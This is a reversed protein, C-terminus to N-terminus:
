TAADRAAQRIGELAAEIRYAAPARVDDIPSLGAVHEPQIIQELGEVPQGILAAEAGHLRQAVASCAGVAIAADSVRAKEDVAIRVAVMAISIVLYRRAGLKFFSSRGSCASAPITIATVLENASRDTARNGKIFAELPVSRVGDSSQLEVGANLVLLPPVGDAAPSANCLNGAITARNQIQVSGVERASQQLAYFAPPLEARSIESWSTRAGIRWGEPSASIGNLADICTIDLLDSRMPEEGLAPFVDTGGALVTWRGEGLLSVAEAVTRPQAYAPM